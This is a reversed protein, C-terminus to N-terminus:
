LNKKFNKSMTWIIIITYFGQNFKFPTSQVLCVYFTILSMLSSANVSRTDIIFEICSIKKIQTSM